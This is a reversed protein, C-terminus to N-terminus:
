LKSIRLDRTFWRGCTRLSYSPLATDSFIVLFQSDIVSTRVPGRLKRKGLLAWGEWQTPDRAYRAGELAYESDGGKFVTFADRYLASWQKASECDSYKACIEFADWCRLGIDGERGDKCMALTYREISDLLRMSPTIVVSLQLRQCFKLYDRLRETARRQEALPQSCSPCTCTFGFLDQLREQLGVSEGDEEMYTIEIEMGVPIDRFAHLVLYITVQYNKLCHYCNYCVQGVKSKMGTTFQM